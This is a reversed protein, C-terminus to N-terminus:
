GRHRQKRSRVPGTCSAADAAARASAALRRGREVGDPSLEAARELSTAMAAHGGVARAHEASEELLTAVEEDPGESAAALHWVRRDADGPAAPARRAFTEALARHTEVRRWLSASTYVASRLLPHRFTLRGQGVVVMQEEEAPELDRWGADALLRAAHLVVSVSGTGDASAVLLLVRTTEPLAAVQETFTRHLHGRTSEGGVAYPSVYHREPRAGPLERLALPNGRAEQLVWGRAQRTLDGATETLLAAAADTDLAPLLVEELGSTPFEPADLDRVALLVVVGEVRLRRAAFLLADASERDLWHADDVLCLLPREEVLEALLTLVALSVLLRDGCSVPALGLAGRLALAQPEPLTDVRHVASGLLLHLGAYPLESEAAVGRGRLVRFPTEDNAPETAVSAAYDLLASKGIGAEGRLM